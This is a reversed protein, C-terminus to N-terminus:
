SEDDAMERFKAAERRPLYDTFEGPLDFYEHLAITVGAAQTSNHEEAWQRLRWMVRHDLRFSYARFAFQNM